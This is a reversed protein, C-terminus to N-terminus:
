APRSQAEANVESIIRQWQQAALGVFQRPPMKSTGFNVFFAYNATYVASIRDGLHAGAIVLSTASADYTYSTGDSTNYEVSFGPDGLTARLSARLFNTDVPMNGGAGVPTQMVEIIRQSAEKFVAEGKQKTSEAFRAVVTTFGQQSM